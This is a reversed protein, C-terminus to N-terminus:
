FRYNLGVRAVGFDHDFEGSASEPPFNESLDVTTSGLDVYLGEVRLFINDTVAYEIGGGVTWGTATDDWSRDTTNDPDTTERFHYSDTFQSVALGATGYVLVRDWAYGLRGRVTALWDYETELGNWFQPNGSGGIDDSASMGGFDAEVGFVFSDVQWNYGAQVGGEFGAASLSFPDNSGDHFYPEGNISIQADNDGFTAGAHVGLYFGTWSFPPEVVPLPEEVLDAARTAACSALLAAVFITPRVLKIM